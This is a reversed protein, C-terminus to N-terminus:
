NTASPDPAPKPSAPKHFILIQAKRAIAAKRKTSLACYVASTVAEGHMDEYTSVKKFKEGFEDNHVEANTAIRKRVFNVGRHIPRGFYTSDFKKLYHSASKGTGVPGGKSAELLYEQDDGGPLALSRRVVEISGASLVKIVKGIKKQTKHKNSTLYDNKEKLIHKKVYDTKM